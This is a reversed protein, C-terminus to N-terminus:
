RILLAILIAAIAAALGAIVLVQIEVDMRADRMNEGTILRRGTHRIIPM